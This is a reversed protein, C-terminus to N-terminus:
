KKFSIHSNLYFRLSQKESEETLENTEIAECLSKLFQGVTVPELQFDAFVLVLSLWPSNVYIGRATFLLVLM